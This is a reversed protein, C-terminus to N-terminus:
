NIPVLPASDEVSVTKLCHNSHYGTVQPILGKADDPRGDAFGRPDM